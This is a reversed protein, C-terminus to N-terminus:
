RSVELSTIGCGVRATIRLEVLEENRRVLLLVTQGADLGALRRGGAATTILVEDIAVVTDGARIQRPAGSVATVTPEVAFM